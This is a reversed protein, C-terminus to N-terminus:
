SGLGLTVLADTTDKRKRLQSGQGAVWDPILRGQAKAHIVHVFRVDHSDHAVSNVWTATGRTQAILNHCFRVYREENGLMIVLKTAGHPAHAGHQTQGSLAGGVEM